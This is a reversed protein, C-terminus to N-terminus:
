IFKSYLEVDEVLSLHLLNVPACARKDVTIESGPHSAHRRFNRLSLGGASKRM